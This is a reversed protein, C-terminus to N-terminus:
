HDQVQLDRGRGRHHIRHKAMRVWLFHGEDSSDAKHVNKKDTELIFDVAEAFGVVQHRCKHGTIKEYATRGDAGVKYKNMIEACFPVLWSFLVGDIVIRRKLRSETFHKITRVQGQWIGIAGEMKGNSKSARVPSEIPVTEGSRAAAVARKLAVVSPEQDSKLTIKEGDYGSQDLIGKFHKVLPETVSKGKVGIAWFACKDDDYIVLSPQVEEDAEEATMFAYDCSVTIGLRDRDAPERIHPALRAKGARCRECWSRYNLHLPYPEYIEAKTPQQPRVGVRPKRVEEDEEQQEERAEQEGEGDAEEGHQDDGGPASPQSEQGSDLLEKDEIGAGLPPAPVKSNVPSISHNVSCRPQKLTM